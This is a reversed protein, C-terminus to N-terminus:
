WPIGSRWLTCIMHTILVRWTPKNVAIPVGTEPDCVTYFQASPDMPPYYTKYEFQINRFKSVNMAGSPQLDFPSTNLNFNYCYLGPKAYGGTRVDEEGYDFVGAPFPNERYKGDM